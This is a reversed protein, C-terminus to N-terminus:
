IVTGSGGCAPCDHWVPTDGIQWREDDEGQWDEPDGHLHKACTACGHTEAWLSDAEADVDEVAAYFDHTLEEASSKDLVEITITDTCADIGEVISSVKIQTVLWGKEDFAKWLMPLDDCYLTHLKGEPDRLTMGVTPGCPTYKYTARYLGYPGDYDPFAAKLMENDLVEQQYEPSREDRYTM